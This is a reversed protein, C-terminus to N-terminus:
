IKPVGFANILSTEIYEDFIIDLGDDRTMAIYKDVMESIFEALMDEGVSGSPLVIVGNCDMYAARCAMTILLNERIPVIKGM